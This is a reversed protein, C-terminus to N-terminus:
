NLYQLAKGQKVRSITKQHLGLRRGIAEQSFGMYLRELIEATIEPTLKQVPHRGKQYMDRVNESRTGAFLHAPNVCRKNDCRHCVHMGSPVAGFAIEYAKRHASVIKHKSGYDRFKGYGAGCVSFKWDWCSTKDGVEAKSWFRSFDTM